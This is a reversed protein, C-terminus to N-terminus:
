AGTAACGTRSRVWAKAFRLEHEVRSLPLDLVIAIRRLPLRRFYRLELLRAARPSQIALEELAREIVLRAESETLPNAIGPM